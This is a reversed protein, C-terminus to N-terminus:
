TSILFGPTPESSPRLFYTLLIKSHAFGFGINLRLATAWRIRSSVGAPFYRGALELGGKSIVRPLPLGVPPHVRLTEKICAQLYQCELAERLKVPRSLKGEKELNKLENRLKYLVSPAKILNYMLATLTIATTDSGGGIFPMAHFRIDNETFGEPNARHMDYMIDVLDNQSAVQAKEDAPRKSAKKDISDNMIHLLYGLGHGQPTLVTLLRFICRHLESYVGVLAGYRSFNLVELMLNSVDSGAQLHGFAQGFQM